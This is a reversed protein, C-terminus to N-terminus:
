ALQVNTLKVSLLQFDSSRLFLYWMLCGKVDQSRLAIVTKKTAHDKASLCSFNQLSRPVEETHSSVFISKGGCCGGFHEGKCCSKETSKCYDSGVEKDDTCTTSSNYTLEWGM